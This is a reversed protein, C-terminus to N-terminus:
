GRKYLESKLVETDLMDLLNTTEHWINEGCQTGRESQALYDSLTLRSPTHIGSLSTSRPRSPTILGLDFSIHKTRKPSSMSKPAPSASFLESILDNKPRDKLPTTFIDGENHRPLPHRRRSSAPKHGVAATNTHTLTRRKKYSKDLSPPCTDDTAIDPDDIDTPDDDEIEAASRKSQNENTRPSLWLPRM